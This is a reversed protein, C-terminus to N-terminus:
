ISNAVTIRPRSPPLFWYLCFNTFFYVLFIYTTHSMNDSRSGWPRWIYPYTHLTESQLPVRTNKHTPKSPSLSFRIYGDTAVEEAPSCDAYFQSLTSHSVQSGGQNFYSYLYFFLPTCAVQHYLQPPRKYQRYIYLAVVTFFFSFVVWHRLSQPPRPYSSKTGPSTVLVAGEPSLVVHDGVHDALKGRVLRM